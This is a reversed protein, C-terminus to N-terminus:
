KEEVNVYEQHVTVEAVFDTVEATVKVAKLPVPVQESFLEKVVRVLGCASGTFPMKICKKIYLIM